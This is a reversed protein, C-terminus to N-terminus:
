RPPFPKRPWRKHRRNSGSRNRRRSAHSRSQHRRAERATDRKRTRSYHSLSRASQRARRSDQAPLQVEQVTQPPSDLLPVRASREWATFKGWHEKEGLHWGHDSWLIVITNEAHPSADLAKIVRGIQADVFSICALYSSVANQWQNHAVVTSHAGSTLPTRGILKGIFPVDNLDSDVDNPIPIQDPPYLEHYKKPAWLPQHPRYFGLGLFFPKSYGKEIQEIAWDACRTDSWESEELNIPGWDFSEIRKSGRNRDRPMQNLPLVLEFGDPRSVRHRVFPISDQLEAKTILTEETTLPNWKNFGPGYEHFTEPGGQNGHLLKGTGMTYYGHEALRQHFFRAEPYVSRLRNANSYMGTSTPGLGTFVAARSPGCVPAACYAHTFIVSERALRDLHPTQVLPHGKLFGVWDNLDDVSIILFNPQTQPVTQKQVETGNIPESLASVTLIALLILSRRQLIM